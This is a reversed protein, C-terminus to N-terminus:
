LAGGADQQMEVKPAANKSDRISIVYGLTVSISQVVMCGFAIMIGSYPIIMPIEMAASLQGKQYSQLFFRISLWFAVVTFAITVLHAMFCVINKVQRPVRDVFFDVCLHSGRSIGLASGFFTVWIFSMLLMEESWHLSSKFVFRALVQWTGVFVTVSLIVIILLSQLTEIVRVIRSLVSHIRDLM